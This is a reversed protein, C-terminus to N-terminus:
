IPLGRTRMVRPRMKLSQQVLFDRPSESLDPVVSDPDVPLVHAHSELRHLHPQSDRVQCVFPLGELVLVFPDAAGVLFEELDVYRVLLDFFIELM